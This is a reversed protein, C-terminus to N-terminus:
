PIAESQRNYKCLNHVISSQFGLFRHSQFSTPPQYLISRQLRRTSPCYDISSQRIIPVMPHRNFFFGLFRQVRFRQVGLKKIFRHLSAVEDCFYVVYLICYVINLRVRQCGVVLLWRGISLRGAVQFRGKTWEMLICYVINLRVSQCGVILLRCGLSLRDAVLFRGQDTSFFTVIAHSEHPCCQLWGYWRM